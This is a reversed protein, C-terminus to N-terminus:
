AQKDATDANDAGNVAKYAAIGKDAVMGGTFTLVLFYVLNLLSEPIAPLARKLVAIATILLLVTAVVLFLCLRKSSGQKDNPDALVGGFWTFFATISIM